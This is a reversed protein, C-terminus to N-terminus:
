RFYQPIIEQFIHGIPTTPSNCSQTGIFIQHLGVMPKTINMEITNDREDDSNGIGNEDLIDNVLMKTTLHSTIQSSENYISKILQGFAVFSATTKTMAHEFEDTYEVDYSASPFRNPKTSRKGIAGNTIASTFARFFWVCKLDFLIVIRKKDFQNQFHQNQLIQFLVNLKLVDNQMKNGTRNSITRKDALQENKMFLFADYWLMIM